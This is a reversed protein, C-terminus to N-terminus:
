DDGGGRLTGRVPGATMGHGGGDSWGFTMGGYRSRNAPTKTTEPRCRKVNGGHLPPSNRGRRSGVLRLGHLGGAIGSGVGSWTALVTDQGARLGPAGGAVV